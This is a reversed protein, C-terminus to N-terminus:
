GYRNFPQQLIIDSKNKEILDLLYSLEIASKEWTFQKATAIANNSMYNLIDKPMDVFSRMRDELDDIYTSAWYPHVPYQGLPFMHNRCGISELYDLKEQEIFDIRYDAAFGNFEHALFERMGSYLNGLLPLGMSMGELCPLNFTSSRSVNVQVDAKSYIDKIGQLSQTNETDHVICVNYEVAKESVFQKFRDTAGRDKLYLEVNHNNKFEKCFAAIVIDIGSRANSESFHLFRFKGDKIRKQPKFEESDVGLRFFSCLNSPYADNLFFLNHLSVGALQRGNALQLIPHALATEYVCVVLDANYGMSNAVTSYVVIKGKEDYLGVNKAADNLNRVIVSSSFAPNAKNDGKVCFKLM